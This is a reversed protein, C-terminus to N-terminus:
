HSFAAESFKTSVAPYRPRHARKEPISRPAMQRQPTFFENRNLQGQIRKSPRNNELQPSGFRKRSLSAAPEMDDQPWENDEYEPAQERIRQYHLQNDKNLPSLGNWNVDQFSPQTNTFHQSGSGQGSRGVEDSMQTERQLDERPGFFNGFMQFSQIFRCPIRKVCSLLTAQDTHFTRALHSRRIHLTLLAISIFESLSSVSQHHFRNKLTPLSFRLPQSQITSPIHLLPLPVPLPLPYYYHYHTTTEDSSHLDLLFNPTSFYYPM